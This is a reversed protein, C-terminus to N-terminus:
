LYGTYISCRYVLLIITHLALFPKQLFDGKKHSKTGLLSGGGEVREKLKEYHSPCISQIAYVLQLM